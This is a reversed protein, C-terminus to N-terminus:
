VYVNEDLASAKPPGFFAKLIVFLFFLEKLLVRKYVNFIYIRSAIAKQFITFNMTDVFCSVNLKRQM